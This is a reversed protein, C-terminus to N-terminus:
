DMVFLKGQNSEYGALRIYQNRAFCRMFTTKSGESKSLFQMWNRAIGGLYDWIREEKDPKLFYKRNKTSFVVHYYLSAFTNALHPAEKIHSNQSM